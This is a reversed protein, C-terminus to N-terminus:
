SKPIFQLKSVMADTSFYRLFVERCEKEMLEYEETTLSCVKEAARSYDKNMNIGLSYSDIFQWTDYKINNILPLGSRLYEISKLTLAVKIDDKMINLAFNCKNFIEKKKDEDFVFGYEVVEAGVARVSNVLRERNQGDGIVHLTTKKRKCLESVLYKISEIDILNNIQGIYCLDISDLSVKERPTFNTDPRCLYMTQCNEENIYDSLSDRYMNCETFVYDAFKLYKNRLNAWFMSPIWLMKKKNNGMPLSEPWLDFVDYILEVNNEKKYKAAFKCLSNPPFKVYLIDPQFKKVEKFVQKSFYYHSYLRNISLNKNYSPVHIQIEDNEAKYYTKKSHDFDSVFYKTEYGKSEFYERVPEIRMENSKGFCNIFAIKM